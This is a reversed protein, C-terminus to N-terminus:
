AEATDGTIGHHRWTRSWAAAAAGGWLVGSVAAVTVVTSPAFLQALLGAFVIGLGQAARLAAIAIGVAQGRYAPPAM